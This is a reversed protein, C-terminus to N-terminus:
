RVLLTAPRRLHPKAEVADPAVGRRDRRPADDTLPPPAPMPAEDLRDVAERAADRLARVAAADAVVLSAARHVIAALAERQAKAHALEAVVSAHQSAYVLEVRRDQCVGICTQPAELKGCGICQWAKITDMTM